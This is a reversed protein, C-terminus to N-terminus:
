LVFCVYKIKKGETLHREEYKTKIATVIGKYKEAYIDETSRIIAIDQESLTQITFEFFAEDDTKM